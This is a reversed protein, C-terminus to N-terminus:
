SHKLLPRLRRMAVLLLGLSTLVLAYISMTPVPTVVTPPVGDVVYTIRIEGDGARIGPTTVAASLLAIYSSGGAGGGNSSGGGGGYWGGGGGGGDNGDGIGGVGVAGDTGASCTSSTVHGGATGGLVQTGGTATIANHTGGNGGVLGGGSGGPGDPPQYASSGGGGGAVIVRDNLTAGNLRIDSAGGGSGAGEGSRPCAITGTAGGGNFGGPLNLSATSGSGGPIGNVGRGGVTINLTDGANVALTGTAYGGLGGPGSVGDEGGAAGWAEITISTVGAPVVFVASSGTYTYTDTVAFTAVSLFSLGLLALFRLRSIM